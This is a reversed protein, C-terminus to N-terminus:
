LHKLVYLSVELKRVLQLNALIMKFIAEIKTDSNYLITSEERALLVDSWFYYFLIITHYKLQQVNKYSM